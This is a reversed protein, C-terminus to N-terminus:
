KKILPDFIIAIGLNSMAEAIRHTVLFYVALAIFVGYLLRNFFCDSGESSRNRQYHDHTLHKRKQVPNEKQIMM